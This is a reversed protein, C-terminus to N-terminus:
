ASYVRALIALFTVALVIWLIVAIGLARVFAMIIQRLTLRDLWSPYMMNLWAPLSVPQVISAKKAQSILATIYFALFLLVASTILPLYVVYFIPNTLPVLLDM